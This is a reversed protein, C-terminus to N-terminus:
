ADAVEEEIVILRPCLMALMKTLSEGELGVTPWVKVNVAKTEPGDLRGAGAPDNVHFTEPAAEVHEGELPGTM